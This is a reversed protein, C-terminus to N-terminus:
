ASKTFKTEEEEPDDAVSTSEFGARSEVAYGKGTRQDFSARAGADARIWGASISLAGASGRSDERLSKKRARIWAFSKEPLLQVHHLASGKQWLVTETQEEHFTLGASGKFGVFPAAGGRTM